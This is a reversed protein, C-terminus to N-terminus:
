NAPGKNVIGFFFAGCAVLHAFHFEPCGTTATFGSFLDILKM